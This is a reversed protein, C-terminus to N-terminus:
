GSADIRAAEKILGILGIEHLPSEDTVKVHRLQKGEGELMGDPDRLYSGYYFGLTLHDKANAIYCVLGNGEFVPRGWKMSEKVGPVYELILRRLAEATKRRNAGLAKFYDETAAKTQV